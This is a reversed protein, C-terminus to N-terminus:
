KQGGYKITEDYCTSTMHTYPIPFTTALNSKNDADGRKDTNMVRRSLLSLLNM